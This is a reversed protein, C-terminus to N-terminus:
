DDEVEIPPKNKADYRRVIEWVEEPPTPLIEGLKYDTLEVDIAWEGSNAFFRVFRRGDREVEGINPMGNFPGDYDAILERSGWEQFNAKLKAIYDPPPAFDRADFKVRVRRPQGDRIVTKLPM